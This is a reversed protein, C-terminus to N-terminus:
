ENAAPVESNSLWLMANEFSDFAQVNWGRMIAIFAFMSTRHHPDTTYLVALRQRSTFGIERFTGVLEKLDEPTFVPKPGPQIARLDLLAQDIGRRLCAKALEALVTKSTPLDFQGHAGLRVFEHARIIQLEM